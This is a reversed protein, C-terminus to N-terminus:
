PMGSIVVESDLTQPCPEDLTIGVDENVMEGFPVGERNAKVADGVNFNSIKPIESLLGAKEVWSTLRPVDGSVVVGIVCHGFRFRLKGNEMCVEGVGNRRFLTDLIPVVEELSSSACCPTLSCGGSDGQTTESDM